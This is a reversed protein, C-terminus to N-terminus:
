YYAYRSIANRSTSPGLREVSFNLQNNYPKAIKINTMTPQKVHRPVLNPLYRSDNTAM